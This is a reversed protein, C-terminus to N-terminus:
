KQLSIKIIEPPMNVDSVTLKVQKTVKAKGDDATITIVYDGHDTYGTQWVGDDGVPSSLTVKVNDLDIDTVVPKITVLNGENVVLDEVAGIEPPVNVDKVTLKFTKKTTLEGDNAEVNITYEGASTHDTKFVGAQLPESVVVTVKDNNPDKVTPTFTVEKGEDITIDQVPEIVPAVNVREVVLKIKKITTLAGDTVTFTTLYEGADGYSTKWEGKEDLPESFAFHITDNDPDRVRAVLRIQENEKVKIVQMEEAFAEEADVATALSVIEEVTKNEEAAKDTGLVDAMKVEAASASVEPVASVEQEVKAIEKLIDKESLPEAGQKYNFCGAVLLFALLLVVIMMLKFEKKIMM